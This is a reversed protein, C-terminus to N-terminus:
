PKKIPLAQIIENFERLWGFGFKCDYVIMAISIVIAWSLSILSGVLFYEASIQKDLEKYRAVTKLAIVAAILPWQLSIVGVLILLRELFGIIKGVRPEDILKINNESSDEENKNFPEIKIKINQLVLSCILNGVPWLMFLLFIYGLSQILSFCKMQM